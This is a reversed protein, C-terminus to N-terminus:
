FSSLLHRIISFFVFLTFVGYNSRIRKKKEILCPQANKQLVEHFAKFVSYSLTPQQMVFPIEKFLWINHYGCNKLLRFFSKSSPKKSVRGKKKLLQKMQNLHKLLLYAELYQCTPQKKVTKTKTHEFIFYHTKKPLLCAKLAEKSMHFVVTANRKNVHARTNSGVPM